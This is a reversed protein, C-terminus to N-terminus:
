FVTCKVPPNMKAKASCQFVQSFHHSSHLSGIMRFHFSVLRFSRTSLAVSRRVSISITYSDYRPYGKEFTRELLKWVLDVRSSPEDFSWSMSTRTGSQFLYFVNARFQISAIITFSTRRRTSEVMTQLCSFSVRNWRYGCYKGISNHKREIDHESTRVRLEFISRRHLTGDRSLDCRNRQEVM